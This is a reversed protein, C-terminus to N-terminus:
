RDGLVGTNVRLISAAAAQFEERLAQEVGEDRAQEPQNARALRARQLRAERQKRRRAKGLDLIVDREGATKAEVMPPTEYSLDKLATASLGGLERVVARVIEMQSPPLPDDIDFALRLDCAAYEYQGTWDDREVLQLTEVVTNEATTLAQDHPGYHRWRWTAGTFATDGDEVARLDAFYLLKVLKTRTIPHDHERAAKLVALLAGLLPNLPHTQQTTM